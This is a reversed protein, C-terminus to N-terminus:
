NTDFEEVKMHEDLWAGRESLWARVKEIEEEFSDSYPARNAKVYRGLVEWKEFNRQPADALTLVAEDIHALLAADALAGQRLEHWRAVYATVFSRKKLLQAAWGREPLLMGATRWNGEFEVDGMSRDFDWVPGMALKGGERKHVYTSATFVDHNRFLENLLFYDVFAGVDIFAEYDDGAADLAREFASVQAEIADLEFDRLDDSKPYEVVLADGSATRFSEDADKVRKRQTWQLLYGLETGPAAAADTTSPRLDVRMDGRKIRETLVYVGRYHTLDISSSGDDNVFLEIFATRPAYRGVERSTAYAVHNRMLSKDMFPAALVWDSDEPMGLLSADRDDEDADWTEFGYQKKPFEQSTFGRVEIGITTDVDALETGVVSLDAIGTEFLQMRAKIRPEDRIARDDTDVVVVPLTTGDFNSLSGEYEPDCAATLALASTLCPLAWGRAWPTKVPHFRPVALCLRSKLSTVRRGDLNLLQRSYARM